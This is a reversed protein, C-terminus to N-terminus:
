VRWTHMRYYTNLSTSSYFLFPVLHTRCKEEYSSSGYAQSAFIEELTMGQTSQMTNTNTHEFPPHEDYDGNQDDYGDDEYGGDDYHGADQDMSTNHPFVAEDMPKSPGFTSSSRHVKTAPKYAKPYFPQFDAYIPGSIPM